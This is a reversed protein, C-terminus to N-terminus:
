LDLKVTRSDVVMGPIIRGNDMKVQTLQGVV